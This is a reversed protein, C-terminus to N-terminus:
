PCESVSEWMVSMLEACEEPTLEGHQEWNDAICLEGLAGFVHPLLNAPILFQRCVVDGATDVTLWANM